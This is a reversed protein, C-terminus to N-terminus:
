CSTSLLLIARKVRAKTRTLAAVPPMLIQCALIARRLALRRLSSGVGSRLLFCSPFYGLTWPDFNGVGTNQLLLGHRRNNWKGLDLWKELIIGVIGYDSNLVVTVSWGKVRIRSQIGFEYGQWLNHIHEHLIDLSWRHIGTRSGGSPFPTVSRVERSSCLTWNM